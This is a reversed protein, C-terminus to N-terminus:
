PLRALAWEAHAQILPEPDKLARELAPRATPDGGNGLAVAVNRLLGRRKARRVPTGRFRERFGAEDLGMLETLRPTSRDPHFALFHDERPQAFRRVWPCVSQCEDCGFIWNKMSPRLVEPIATRLEITLYSICLRSDLVYPVPFAHTPCTEQCLTCSGCSGTPGTAQAGGESAPEDVDLELDTIIEALFLYSGFRPHILLTNKGYFGIGAEAAADRELVPGTDVYYRTTAGGGSEARLFGALERLMPTLVDHYDRGWAYRAIRGRSPDNWYEDPPEGAYYSLGLSVVSRAGEVVRRPDIRRGPERALWEMEGACGDRLWREFESAHRSRGAPGIGVLDFGIEVAKERIRAGLVDPPPQSRSM